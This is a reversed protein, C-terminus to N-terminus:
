QPGIWGKRGLHRARSSSPFGHLLLIAPSDQPGAERYFVSLGNVEVTRYATRYM